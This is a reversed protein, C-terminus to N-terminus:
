KFEELAHGFVEQIAYDAPHEKKTHETMEEERQCFFKCSPCTKRTLCEPIHSDLKKKSSFKKSCNPCQLAVSPDHTRSHSQLNSRSSFYKDCIRCTFPKSREHLAVHNKFVDKREFTAAPICIECTYVSKARQHSNKLHVKLQIQHTFPKNCKSCKFLPASSDNTERHNLAKHYSLGDLSRYSKGCEECLYNSTDNHIRLHRTLDQPRTFSKGCTSCKKEKSSLKQALPQNDLKTDKELTWSFEVNTESFQKRPKQFLLYPWLLDITFGMWPSTIWYVWM